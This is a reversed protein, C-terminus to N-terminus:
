AAGRKGRRVTPAPPAPTEEGAGSAADPPTEASSTLTETMPLTEGPSDEHGGPKAGRNQVAFQKCHENILWEVLSSQDRFRWGVQHVTLRMWTEQNVTVSHPRESRNGRTVIRDIRVKRPPASEAKTGMDDM